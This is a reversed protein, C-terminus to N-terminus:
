KWVSCSITSRCWQSLLCPNSGVRPSPSPCPLRAHQLGRTVFLWVCGLLPVVVGEVARPVSATQISPLDLWMHAMSPNPRSLRSAGDEGRGRHPHQAWHLGACMQEPCLTGQPSREWWGGPRPRARRESCGTAGLYLGQNVPEKISATEGPRGSQM